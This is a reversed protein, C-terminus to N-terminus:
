VILAAAVILAFASIVITSPSSNCFQKDKCFCVDSHVGFPYQKLDTSSCVESIGYPNVDSCYKQTSYYSGVRTTKKVCYKKSCSGSKCDGNKSDCEYCKPVANNPTADGPGQCNLPPQAIDADSNCSKPDTNLCVIIKYKADVSNGLSDVQKLTNDMECYDQQNSQITNQTFKKLCGRVYLVNKTPEVATPDEILYSVCPSNCVTTNRPNQCQEFKQDPFLPLMTLHWKSKLEPSACDYCSDSVSAIAVDILAILFYFLQM